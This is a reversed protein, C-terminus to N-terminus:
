GKARILALVRHRWEYGSTVSLSVYQKQTNLPQGERATLVRPRGNLPVYIGISSDHVLVDGPRLHERYDAIMVNPYRVQCNILGDANVVAKKGTGWGARSHSLVKGAKLLGVDQLVWSVFHACSCGPRDLKETAAFTSKAQYGGGRYHWRRQVLCAALTQARSVVADQILRTGTKPGVIGDAELEARSQYTRVAQETLAGWDGDEELAYGCLNLRHQIQRVDEGRAGLHPYWPTKFLKQEAKRRNVLGTKYCTATGWYVVINRAYDAASSSHAILQRLGGLGRNYTYSVLADFQNQNLEIPVYRNVYGEFEKLDKKLAAEARAKTWVTEKKISSDFTHGYGITYYKEGVLKVAKLDCGEWMKILALGKEGITLNM